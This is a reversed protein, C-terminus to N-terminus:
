RLISLAMIILERLLGPLRNPLLVEKPLQTMKIEVYNPDDIWERASIIDDKNKPTGVYGDKGYATIIRSPDNDQAIVVKGDKQFVSVHRGNKNIGVFTRKPNNIIDVQVNQSINHKNPHGQFHGGDTARAGQIDKLRKKRDQNKGGMGSNFTQLHLLAFINPKV